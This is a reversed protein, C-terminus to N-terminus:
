PNNVIIDILSDGVPGVITTPDVTANATLLDILGLLLTYVTPGNVSDVSMVFEWSQTGDYTTNLSRLPYASKNDRGSTKVSEIVPTISIRARNAM